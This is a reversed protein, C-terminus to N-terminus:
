IMAKVTNIENEFMEEKEKYRRRAELFAQEM